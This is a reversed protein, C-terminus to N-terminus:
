EKVKNEAGDIMKYVNIPPIIIPLLGAKLTVDSIVQRIYPLVLAPGNYKTYEELSISGPEKQSFLGVMCCSINITKEKDIITIKYKLALKDKTENFSYDISNNFVFNDLSFKNLDV